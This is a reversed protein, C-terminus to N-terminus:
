FCHSSIWSRISPGTLEFTADNTTYWTSTMDKRSGGGSFAGWANLTPSATTYDTGM